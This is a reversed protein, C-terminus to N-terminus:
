QLSKIWNKMLEKKTMEENILNHIRLTLKNLEIEEKIFDQLLDMRNIEKLTTEISIGYSLNYSVLDEIEDFDM